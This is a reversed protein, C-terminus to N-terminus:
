GSSNLFEAGVSIAVVLEQGVRCEASHASSGAGLLGNLFNNNAASLEAIREPVSVAPIKRSVVVPLADAGSVNDVPRLLVDVDQSLEGLSAAIVSGPFKLPDLVDESVLDLVQAVVDLVLLSGVELGTFFENVTESCELFENLNQVIIDDSLSLVIFFDLTEACLFCILVLLGSVHAFVFNILQGLSEFLESFVHFV